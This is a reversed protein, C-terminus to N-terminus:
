AAGAPHKKAPREGALMPAGCIPGQLYDVGWGGLLRAVAEDEVWEAITAIGFHHALDILSRVFFRDDTSRSLAQVFVGDIKLM